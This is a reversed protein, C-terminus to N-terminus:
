PLSSPLKSPCVIFSPGVYDVVLTQYQTGICDLRVRMSTIVTIGKLRHEIEARFIM